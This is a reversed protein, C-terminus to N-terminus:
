HPVPGHSSWCRRRRCDHEVGNTRLTRLRRIPRVRPHLAPADAPVADFTLPALWPRRDVTSITGPTLSPPGRQNLGLCWTETCQNAPNSPRDHTRDRPSGVPAVAVAAVVRVRACQPHAVRDLVSSPSVLPARRAAHGCRRSGSSRKTPRGEGRAADGSHEVPSPRRVPSAVPGVRRVRDRRLHPTAPVVTFPRNTPGPGHAANRAERNAATPGGARHRSGAHPFPRSSSPPRPSM